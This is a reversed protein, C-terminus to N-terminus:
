KLLLVSVRHECSQRPKADPPTSPDEVACHLCARFRQPAEGKRLEFLKFVLVEDATMEPYYYWRQGANYKLGIHYTEAGNPAIGELGTSIMDEPDISNPDCLVLPMHRLPEDMTPRWFDLVVFTDVDDRDVRDRWQGAIEPGAFAEVNHQYEDLTRDHDCHIGTGYQPTETGAGRRMVFPPQMVILERGPYLRTRIMEEVQPLYNESVDERDGWDRVTHPANLLVFGYEDLFESENRGGQLPRADHVRTPPLSEPRYGRNERMLQSLHVRGDPKFSPPFHGPLITEIM